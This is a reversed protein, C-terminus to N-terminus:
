PPTVHLPLSGGAPQCSKGSLGAESQLLRYGIVAAKGEGDEFAQFRSEGRGALAEAEVHGSDGPLFDGIFGKFSNGGALVGSVDEASGEVM